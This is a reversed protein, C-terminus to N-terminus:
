YEEFSITNLVDTPQKLGLHRSPDLLLLFGVLSIRCWINHEAVDEKGLKTGVTLCLWVYEQSM